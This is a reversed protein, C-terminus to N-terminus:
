IKEHVAFSRDFFRLQLCRLFSRILFAKTNDNNTIDSSKCNTSKSEVKETREMWIGEHVCEDKISDNSCHEEKETESEIIVGKIVRVPAM